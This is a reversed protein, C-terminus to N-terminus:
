WAVILKMELTAYDTMYSFTYLMKAGHTKRTKCICIGDALGSM